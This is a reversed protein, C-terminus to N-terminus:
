DNEGGSSIDSLTRMFKQALYKSVYFRYPIVNCSCLMQNEDGEIEYFQIKYTIGNSAFTLTGRESTNQSFTKEDAWSAANLSSIYSAWESTKEQDLEASIETNSSSTLTWQSTPISIEQGNEDTGTAAAAQQTKNVTFSGEETNVSIQTIADGSVTYVEKSRLSDMTVAYITHMSASCIMIQNSDDLTLYSQSGSSSNKGINVTRIVEDGAKVKVAIRSNQDLGFREENASSQKAANGLIHIERINDFLSSATTADADYTESGNANSVTYKEGNKSLILTNAQDSGSCIELSTIDEKTTLTQTKSKGGISIQLIYVCLLVAALSLLIIKQVAHRSM